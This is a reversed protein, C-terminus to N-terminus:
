GEDLRGSIRFLRSCHLLDAGPTSYRRVAPSLQRGPLAPRVVILTLLGGLWVAATVMHVVISTTSDAHGAGGTAHSKLVLPVLGAFALVLTVAVRRPGPRRLCLFAVAAAIVVALAGSRGADIETLFSVFAPGFGEEGSRNALLLFSAGTHVAAAVSWVVASWGAFQWAVACAREGRPLAFVALVLAGITGAGALNFVLKAAPLGWTVAPGTRNLLGPNASGGHSYSWVMALVGTALLVAVAWCRTM